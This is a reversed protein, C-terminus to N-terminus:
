TEMAGGDEVVIPWWRAVMAGGDSCWVRPGGHKRADSCAGEKVDGVVVM